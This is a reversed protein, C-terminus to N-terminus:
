QVVEVSPTQNGVEYYCKECCWLTGYGKDLLAFKGCEDCQGSKTENKNM